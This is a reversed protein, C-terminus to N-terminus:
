FRYAVGVNAVIPNVSVSDSGSEDSEVKEGLYRVNTLIAWNDGIHFDYGLNLGYIVNQKTSQTGEGNDLKLDGWFSYGLTVGVYLNKKALMHFNYDLLIPMNSITGVKEGGLKVDHDAFLLSAGFSMNERFKYKYALGYDITSDAEAKATTDEGTSVTSDSMPMVYGVVVGLDNKTDAASAMPIALALVALLALVKVTRM